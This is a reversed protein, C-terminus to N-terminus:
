QHMTEWLERLLRARKREIRRKKREYDATEQLKADELFDRRIENVNITMRAIVALQADFDAQQLQHDREM